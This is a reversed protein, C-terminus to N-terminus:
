TTQLLVMDEQMLHELYEESGPMKPQPRYDGFRFPGCVLSCLADLEDDGHSPVKDKPEGVYDGSRFRDWFLNDFKQVAEAVGPENILFYVRSGPPKGTIPHPHYKHNNQDLASNCEMARDEPGKHTSEIPLIGEKVYQLSLNNGTTEDTKFLKYDGVTAVYVESNSKTHVEQIIYDDKGPGWKYKHQENNSLRIIDACRQPITTGRKSYARYFFWTNTDDLLGWWVATPHDYGPDFARYLQHRPRRDLLEKFTWNLCHVDKNLCELILGSSAFFDGDLRAKGEPRGEWMRIMDKRKAEPVVHDPANRVSFKKFFYPSLPLEEEGILCRYALATKAGVNRAEFPTYDWSAFSPEALRNKVENLIAPSFGETLVIGHVADGSWKTDKSEYSKGIIEHTTPKPNLGNATTIVFFLRNESDQLISPKPLWDRWRKMIIKRHYDADPAGLWIQGGHPLPPEPFSPTYLDPFNLQLTAFKFENVISNQQRQPDHEPSPDLPNARPRRYDIRSKDFNLPLSGTDYPATKPDGSLQQPHRQIKAQILRLNKLCPRPFVQVLQGYQDVYPKFMEWNTDNPFIWLLANIVYAVTKGIRNASFCIPFDVGWIWSNLILSQEYSPKFYALPFDEKLQEHTQQYAQRATQLLLRLQQGEEDQSNLMHARRTLTDM